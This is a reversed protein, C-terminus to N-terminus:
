TETEDSAIKMGAEALAALIVETRLKKSKLSLALETALQEVVPKHRNTISFQRSLTKASSGSGIMVSFAESQPERGRVAVLSETQRFVLAFKAIELLATDIDRDNWDRPPKNAALSLIGELSGISGDYKQLYSSFADQRLDGTIHAVAEARQKLVQFEGPAADLQELMTLEISRLLSEYAKALEHVPERLAKIYNKGDRTGLIAPLDVFLVRHPDSAKLLIDRVARAENSINQTRQTWAPLKLTMAVLSRAAELPDRTAGQQGIESLIKSIGLLIKTKDDDITIWRLSFRSPDQIYEDVDADCLRPIFMGDKYVALNSKYSLLFAMFIVPTIGMKLGYPKATWLNHLTNVEIRDNTDKFLKKTASWLDTFSGTKRGTPVVFQWEGTEANLRHLTTHRLITEYLGREAPYGSIGLSEEHENDLMRYLLDKRAKVSNSSMSDRNILESFVHPAASYATDALDSALRSLRGCAPSVQGHVIWRAESVAIKLQEDLNIRIDALRATVERRAVPDGELEPRTAVSQLSLLEIGLDEIRGFNTPVGIVVNPSTTEATEQCKRIASKLSTSKSPIALVLQGFAGKGQKFKKVLDPADDLKCLCIEMWRLTGTDHYHRKAVIPLLESAKTLLSFDIGPLRGRAERLAREIDFDSGEFISWCDLHKKFITVRWSSLQELATSVTAADYEPFLTALVENSASLSSGDKFLDLVAISKILTFHLPTAGKAETREVSEVAQAWRHGDPSALIAPELNARLYDWYNSPSYVATSSLPTSQLHARFGHPEVSALFGFTSRENQGFQRKSIPGLLSAMVPHLPWCADLSKAFSNGLAPRRARIAKAITEASKTVRSPGAPTKIAQGILEVVEDSAAVLPIDVFRGQIKAWDDRTDLGLRTAYQHFSQHLIGVVVLKGKTRAAAEALEQFFYVDDGVGLAASELFKGMEDIILLLGDHKLNSAEACLDQIVQSSAIQQDDKLRRRHANIAHYIERSVSGRKGVVCITKWGVRTAFAQNFSATGAANLVSRAKARLKKDSSVASALAVALSSKGGGFPGTWTFARQATEVIQRSMTELVSAATGQCIYGELADVRGLDADLRISRQYHRAIEVVDALYKNMHKNM